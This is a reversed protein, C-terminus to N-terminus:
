QGGSGLLQLRDFRRDHVQDRLRWWDHLLAAAACFSVGTLTFQGAIGQPTIFLLGNQEQMGPAVPDGTLQFSPSAPDGLSFELDGVALKIVKTGNPRTAQEFFFDAGVTVGGVGITAHGTARLLTGSFALTPGGAIALNRATFDLATTANTM